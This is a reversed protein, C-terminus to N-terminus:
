LCRHCQVLLAFALCQEIHVVIPVPMLARATSLENWESPTRSLIALGRVVLKHSDAEAIGLMGAPFLLVEKHHAAAHNIFVVLNVRTAWAWWWRKGESCIGGVAPAVVIVKRVLETKIRNNNCMNQQYIQM